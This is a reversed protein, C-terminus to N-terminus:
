QNKYETDCNQPPGTELVPGEFVVERQRRFASRCVDEQDLRGENKRIMLQAGIQSGVVVAGTAAAMLPLHFHRETVHGAFGSFSPFIVVFASTAAAQKVPYGLAKMLPVFLFFGGIGLLGSVVGIWFGGLSMWLLRTRISLQRERETKTSNRLM